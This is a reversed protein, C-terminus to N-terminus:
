NKKNYRNLKLNLIGELEQKDNLNLKRFDSIIKSELDDVQVNFIGINKVAEDDFIFWELNIDFKKKLAIITDLSPKYKDKELESLMGQSVGIIQSFEIQSLKNLKRLYRLKEGISKM